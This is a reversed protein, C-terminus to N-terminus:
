TVTVSVLYRGRQVEGAQLTAREGYCAALRTRTNRLGVGAGPASGLDGTTVNEVEIRLAIPNDTRDIRISIHLSQRDDAAGHIVANEVLPQLLLAPVQEQSLQPECAIEYTLRGEFRAAQIRLYVEALAIEDVLAAWEREAAALTRRYLDSVALVLVRARSPQPQADLLTAIMNFTNFLFHPNLQMRLAQLRAQMWAAHLGAREAESRQLASSVFAGAILALGFFYRILFDLAMAAWLQSGHTDPLLAGRWYVRGSFLLEMALAMVPRSTVAVALALGLHAIVAVWRRQKPWGVRLALYYAGLVVLTMLLHHLVRVEVMMGLARANFARSGGAAFLEGALISVVSVAAWYPLAVLLLLRWPSDNSAGARAAARGALEAAIPEAFPQASSV